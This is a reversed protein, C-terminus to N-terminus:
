ARPPRQPLEPIHLTALLSLTTQFVPLDSRAAQGFSVPVGFFAHHCGLHGAGDSTGGSSDGTHSHGSGHDSGGHEHDGAAAQVSHHGDSSCMLPGVVAAMGQLPMVLLLAALALKRILIRM